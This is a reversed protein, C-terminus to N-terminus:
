GSYHRGETSTATGTSGTPSYIVGADPGGLETHHEAQATPGSTGDPRAPQSRANDLDPQVPALVVRDRSVREHLDDMQVVVTDENVSIIRYPGTALPVLKHRSEERPNAYDKRVYVHQGPEYDDKPIRARKYYNAKYRHQAKRLEARATSMLASLWTKSKVHYQDPDVEEIRTEDQLSQNRPPRSLVLEFPVLKTSTHVQANYPFTLTDSFLDWDKPHEGVYHRLAKLISKSSRDAQGNTQAHYTTTFVNRIGLLRRVEQFLQSM